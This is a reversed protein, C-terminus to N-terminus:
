GPYPNWHLHMGRVPAVRRSRYFIKPTGNPGYKVDTAKHFADACIERYLRNKSLTTALKRKENHDLDTHWESVVNHRQSAITTMMQWAYIEKKEQSLRQWSTKLYEILQTQTRSTGFEVILTAIHKESVYNQLIRAVTKKARVM